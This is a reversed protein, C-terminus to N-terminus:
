RRARNPNGTVAVGAMRPDFREEPAREGRLQELLTTIADMIRSTAERLSPADMPRDYLDSLDVPPGAMIHMTRRPFLRLLKAYPPLVEQPGWQAVPVVPCRTQLAVRAAGTKGVMPWLGPDRTLTGEPLIVVAKGEAIGQVAARYADAAHGSERYVPIQGAGSLLRGFVPLRFLVEKALFFPPYGADYLYLSASMPDFHSLHNVCVVLGGQEPFHHMGRFDRKLTALLLPRLWLAIFRYALPLKPRHVRPVAGGEDDGDEGASCGTDLAPAPTSSV